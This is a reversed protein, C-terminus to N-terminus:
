SHPTSVPVGCHSFIFRLVASPSKAFGDFKQNLTKLEEWSGHALKVVQVTQFDAIRFRKAGHEMSQPQEM